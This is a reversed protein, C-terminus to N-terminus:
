AQLTRRVLTERRTTAGPLSRVVAAKGEIDVSSKPQINRHVFALAVAAAASADFECSTIAGVEKGAASVVAGRAPPESSQIELLRLPRPVNGGRSDVRAVLEQGTYCGKTFSVSADVLGPIEAPITRETLERGMAPWGARIRAVEFASAAADPSAVTLGPGLFDVGAFGTWAVEACVEANVDDILSSVGAKLDADAQSTTPTAHRLSLMRWDELVEVDVEVRLLFRRLRAALAPAFGSDVDLLFGDPARTLRFWADIKGRPALILSWASEGIEIADVDQSIQGQLYAAADGGSVRVVDREFLASLPAQESPGTLMSM